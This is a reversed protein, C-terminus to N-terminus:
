TEFRCPTVKYIAAPTEPQATSAFYAAMEGGEMAYLYM